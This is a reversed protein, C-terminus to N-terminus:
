DQMYYFILSPNRKMERRFFNFINIGIGIKDIYKETKEFRLLQM